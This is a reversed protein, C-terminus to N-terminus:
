PPSRRPRPAQRERGRRPLIEKRHSFLATGKTHSKLGQSAAGILVLGLGKAREKGFSSPLHHGGGGPIETDHDGTRDGSQRLAFATGKQPAEGADRRPTPTDEAATISLIEKTGSFGKGLRIKHHSVSDLVAYGKECFSKKPPLRQRLIMLKRPRRAAPGGPIIQPEVAKKPMGPPKHFNLLSTLSEAGVADDGMKPSLRHAAGFLINQLLNGVEGCLPAALHNKRSNMQPAVAALPLLLRQPTEYLLYATDGPYFANSKTRQFGKRYGGSQKSHKLLGGLEARVEVNRKLATIITHQFAHPTTIGRPFEGPEYGHNPLDESLIKVDTGIKEYTKGSLIRPGKLSGQLKGLIEAKAFKM